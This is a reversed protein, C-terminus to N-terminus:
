VSMPVAQREPDTEDEGDVRLGHSEAEGPRIQLAQRARWMRLRVRSRMCACARVLVAVPFATEM